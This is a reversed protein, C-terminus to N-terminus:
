SFDVSLEGSILKPLLTDRINSLQINEEDKLYWEQMFPALISKSFIHIITNDKPGVFEVQSIVNFTIQPFTGSRSEAMVQLFDIIDQQTLIFYLFKSDIDAIPRLVM